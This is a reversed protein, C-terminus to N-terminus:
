NIRNDLATQENKDKTKYVNKFQRLTSQADDDHKITMKM